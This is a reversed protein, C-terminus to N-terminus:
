NKKAQNGQNMKKMLAKTFNQIEAKVEAFENIEYVKMGIRIMDSLGLKRIIQEDTELIFAAFSFFETAAIDIAMPIYRAMQSISIDEMIKDLDEGTDEAIKAAVKQILSIARKTIEPYKELPIVPIIIGKIVNTKDEQKEEIPQALPVEETIPASAFDKVNRRKMFDLFM